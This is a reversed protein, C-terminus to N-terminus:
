ARDLIALFQEQTAVGAGLAEAFTAPDAIRVGLSQAKVYKGTSSEPSVLMSTSASVSSSAKGGAAEIAEAISTRSYGPVSGSVVLTMGALPAAADQAREAGMNVGAAALRDLVGREVLSDLGERITRAKVEGFGDLAAIDAATAARLADMTPFAAALRRGATRGTMRIGLATIVRNWPAGKARDLEAVIKAANKAGLTRGEGMQLTTLTAADLTFLDAVDNVHGGDVLATAIEIGIGEVDFMESRTAYVVTGLVSFEPSVSRWLLTSKDWPEGAPDTEPPTWPASDAPRADLVVSEVYPIVDNARALVVTDGIRVDREAMWTPNHGSAFTITTGGVFVPEVEIQIGMRGTRGITTRVAVVKTIGTEAAYKYALAWKPARDGEGLRKRDAAANAKIVIGDIPFGITARQDELADVQALVDDLHDAGSPVPHLFDLLSAATGLGADAAVRMADTYLGSAPPRTLGAGYAAFSLIGAYAKDGKRLMGAAANRSNVFPAGGLSARVTQARLFDADSCYVEGRVERVGYTPDIRRPLGQIRLNLGSRTIDEGHTGTGRTAVLVLRGEADYQARIALGDLKPEIAVPGTVSGVFATLGDRGDAKELSGMRSPHAVDGGKSQGAAVKSLLDEYNDIETPSFAVRAEIAAIGADYEADTMLQETGDYYARAAARLRDALALYAEEEALSDLQAFDAAIAAADTTTM